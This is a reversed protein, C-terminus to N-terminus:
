QSCLDVLKQSYREGYARWSLRAREAGLIDRRGSQERALNLATTIAAVMANEDDHPVVTIWRRDGLYERIDEGGTRDTCVVPLGCALAQAQVLSLGEERSAHVFVDAASYFMNLHEQSVPDHHIFLPSTPRPANGMAGVHVLRWNRKRCVEWLFDCGKRLNWTGVFILTPSDNGRRRETPQFMELDVGYPNRFLKYSPVSYEIFSEVVHRSPVSILDAYDYAWLERRVAWAAISPKENTLSSLIARQSLIHRSGREIIIKAGYRHRAAEASKVCLGSMGVFVDCQELVSACLRDIAIQLTHDVWASGVLRHGVVLPAVYPLLARHCYAPLGFKVARKLPVYSYFRVDHGLNSLERALDLAHFRGSTVVAVRM